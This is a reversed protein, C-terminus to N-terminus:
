QQLEKILSNFKTVVSDWTYKEQMLIRAKLSMQLREDDAMNVAKKLADAINSELLGSPIAAGYEIVDNLNCEQSLICPIGYSLAELAAMPMGEKLSPLIFWGVKPFLEKKQLENVPGILEITNDSGILNSIEREFSPKGSGAIILKGKKNNTNKWAKILPIINKDPHLRGLFLVDKNTLQYNTNSPLFVGNPIVEIKNKIGFSRLNQVEQENLVHIASANNLMYKIWPLFLKKKLSKINELDNFEGRISFISILNNKKAFLFSKWCNWQWIGQILVATVNKEKNLAKGLQPTFHFHYPGYKKFAVVNLQNYQHVLLKYSEPHISQIHSDKSGFVSVSYNKQLFATVLSRVSLFPGGINNYLSGTIVILNM